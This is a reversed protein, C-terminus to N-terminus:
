YAGRGSIVAPVTALLIEIDRALSWGAVYQYDLALREDFPIHSRGSIQWPGTLGPRLDSRRSQWSETLADAEAAVIPRPGVLSMDGRLVNLLQPTEDLSFRRILQGVRTVRDDDPAKLLAGRDDILLGSDAHMSRFKFVPFFEGRRGPRRQVFLVPGRSDLRIAIAIAILIPSLAILALSAGTVDLARKAVRSSRSFHPSDISLLPMSGIQDLVRAGHLFEFLRPVIDVTVGADRCVRVVQLLDEHGSRTFAIIVRDVTGSAVLRPLENLGGLWRTGADGVEHSQDDLHGIVDLGVEKHHALRFTLRRAVDGSGIILTRERLKASRHVSARAGARAIGATAATVVSAVLAAIAGHPRDLLELGGYVPWSMLLSALVLKPAEVVGSAWSRLGNAAYLGCLFACLPWAVALIPIVLAAQAGSVGAVAGTAVGALAAAVADACVLKRRLHTYRDTRRRPGVYLPLPEVLGLPQPLAATAEATTMKM